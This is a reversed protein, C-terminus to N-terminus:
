NIIKILKMNQVYGELINENIKNKKNDDDEKYLDIPYVLKKWDYTEILTKQINKWEYFVIVIIM